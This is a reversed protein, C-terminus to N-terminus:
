AEKPVRGYKIHNDRLYEKLGQLQAKTAWVRFDLCITEPETRAAAPAPQATPQPVPAPTSAPVPSPAPAPGGVAMERMAQLQREAAAREMKKKQEALESKKQLALGLDLSELYVMRVTDRYETEM